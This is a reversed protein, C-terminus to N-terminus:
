AHWSDWISPGLQNTSTRSKSHTSPSLMYSPISTRSTLLRTDDYAKILVDHLEQKTSKWKHLQKHFQISCETNDVHTHGWSKLADQTFALPGDLLPVKLLVPLEEKLDGVEEWEDHLDLSPSRELSPSHSRYRKLDTQKEKKHHSKGRDSKKHCRKKVLHPSPSCEKSKVSATAPTM